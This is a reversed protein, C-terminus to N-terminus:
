PQELYREWRVDEWGTTDFQARVARCMIALKKRLAPHQMIIDTEPSGGMVYEMIRARDEAPYTKSYADIFYANEPEYFYLWRSWDERESTNYDYYYEFGEPNCSDWTGNYLEAGAEESLRNETIHWIEHCLTGPNLGSSIDLLINNWQGYSFAVGVAGAADGNLNGALLLRIGGEGLNTKFQRLFGEPYLSLAAELADLAESIRAKEESLELSGTLKVEYGSHSAPRECQDSLLVTVGYAEGIEDARLRLATLEARVDPLRVSEAYAEGVAMDIPMNSEAAEPTCLPSFTLAAPDILLLKEGEEDKGSVLLLREEPLYKCGEVTGNWGFESLECATIESGLRILRAQEGSSATVYPSDGAFCLRQRGGDDYTLAARPLTRLGIDDNSYDFSLLTEGDQQPKTMMVFLDSDCYSFTLNRNLAALEGTFANVVACCTEAEYEDTYVQINLMGSKPCSSEIEAVHMNWDLKVPTSEMSATDLMLLREDEVYWFRSLDFSPEGSGINEPVSFSKVTNLKEDLLMYQRCDESCLLINGGCYAEYLEFAGDIRLSRESKGSVTNVVEVCSSPSGGEPQEKWFVAAKGSGLDAIEAEGVPQTCELVSVPPRKKEGGGGRLLLTLLLALM